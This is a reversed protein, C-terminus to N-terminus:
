SGTDGRTTVGRRGEGGEGERVLGRGGVGCCCWGVEMFAGVADAADVAVAQAGVDPRAELGAEVDGLDGLEEGGGLAHEAARVPDAAFKETGVDPM